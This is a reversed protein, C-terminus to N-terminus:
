RLPFPCELAFCRQRSYRPPLNCRSKQAVLDTRPVSRITTFGVAARVAVAGRDRCRMLFRMLFHCMDTM